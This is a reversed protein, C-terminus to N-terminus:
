HQQAMTHSLTVSGLFTRPLCPRDTSCTCLNTGSLEFLHQIHRQPRQGNVRPVRKHHDEAAFIFFVWCKRLIDQAIHKGAQNLTHGWENGINTIADETACNARALKLAHSGDRSVHLCRKTMLLCQRSCRLVLSVITIIHVAIAAGFM